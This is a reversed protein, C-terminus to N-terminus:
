ARPPYLELKPFYTAYYGRDRTVLRDAHHVAHAGILLDALLHQRPRQRADCVECRVSIAEGCKACTLSQGRRSAYERWAQGAAHLAATSSRELRVGTEDLFRDLDGDDPFQASLESYVTESIVLAGAGSSDILAAESSDGFAADPVLLDLLVNTDIASIM